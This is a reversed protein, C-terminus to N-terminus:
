NTAKAYTSLVSRNLDADSRTSFLSAAHLSLLDDPRTGDVFYVELNDMLQQHRQESRIHSTMLPEERDPYAALALEHSELYKAYRSNLKDLLQQADDSSGGKDILKKHM